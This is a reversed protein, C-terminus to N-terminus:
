FFIKAFAPYLHKLNVLIHSKFDAFNLNCSEKIVSNVLKPLCVSLRKTARGTKCVPVVFINIGRTNITNEDLKAEAHISSRTNHISENIKLENYINRLIAM